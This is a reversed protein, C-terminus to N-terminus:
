TTEIARAFAAFATEVRRFYTFKGVRLPRLFGAGTLIKLHVSAARANSIAEFCLSLGNQTEVFRLVHMPNGHKSCRSRGRGSTMLRVDGLSITARM